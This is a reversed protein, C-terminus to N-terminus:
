GRNTLMASPIAGAGHETFGADLVPVTVSGDNVASVMAMQVAASHVIQHETFRKERGVKGFGTDENIFM